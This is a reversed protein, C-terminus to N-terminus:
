LNLACCPGPNQSAQGKPILLRTLAFSHSHGLYLPQPQSSASQAFQTFAARLWPTILTPLVIKGMLIPSSDHGACTWWCGSTSADNGFHICAGSTYLPPLILRLTEVMDNGAYVLGLWRIGPLKDFAGCPHAISSRHIFIEYM